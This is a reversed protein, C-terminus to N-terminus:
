IGGTNHQRLGTSALALPSVPDCVCEQVVRRPLSIAPAGPSQPQINRTVRSRPNVRLSVMFLFIVINIVLVDCKLWGPHGLMWYLELPLYLATSLLSLWQAWERERWLGYALTAIVSAYALTGLALVWLNRDSFHSALEFLLNSLMGEPNVHLVQVVQGAIDDLNKHMLHFLACGLLLSSVAKIVEFMAITRLVVSTKTFHRRDPAHHGLDEGALSLGEELSKNVLIKVDVRRNLERGEAHASSALPHTRRHGVPILIRGMPIDQVQYFYRAVVATRAESLEQDAKRDPANSTFGSTEAL